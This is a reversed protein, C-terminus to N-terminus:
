SAHFPLVNLSYRVPCCNHHPNAMQNILHYAM